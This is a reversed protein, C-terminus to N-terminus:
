DVRTWVLIVGCPRPERDMYQPPVGNPSSYVELGAIEGPNTLDDLEIDRMPIGDMWVKPRCGRLRIANGFRAPRISAGPIRRFVDSSFQPNMKRIDDQTLFSGAGHSTRRQYFERLRSNQGLVVVNELERPVAELAIEIHQSSNIGVNVPVLRPAYGLRKVSITATGDAVDNFVFLGDTLTRIVGSTDTGAFLRVQADPIPVHGADTVIGEVRSTSRNTSQASVSAAILACMALAIAKKHASM